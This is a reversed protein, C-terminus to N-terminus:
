ALDDEMEALVSSFPEYNVLAQPLHAAKWMTIVPVLEHIEALRSVLRGQNDILRFRDGDRRLIMYPHDQDYIYYSEKEYCNLDRFWVLHGPELARLYPDPQSWPRVIQNLVELDYERSRTGQANPPFVGVGHLHPEIGSRPRIHCKPANLTIPINDALSEFFKYGITEDLATYNLEHLAELVNGISDKPTFHYPPEDVPIRLEAPSREDSIRDLLAPTSQTIGVEEILPSSL